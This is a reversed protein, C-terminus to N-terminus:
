EIRWKNFWNGNFSLGLCLRIYDEKLSGKGSPALHEWQVAVNLNSRTTYTNVIPLGLGLSATYSKPGDSGNVKAYSTAYAFGARYCIHDSVKLGEPNPVFEAGVNVKHRDSFAGETAQYAIQQGSTMLQPFRCKSWCQLTYDAGVKWKEGHTYALGVGYTTPLQLADPATLTDGGLIATATGKQNILTAQSNIKHGLSYALGLTLADKKNLKHTYQLGLDVSYTNVHAKYQRAVNYFATNDYTITSSHQLRGFIYGANFGISLNDIPSWGMGLWVKHTGGEGTYSSTVIKEGYGDIDALTEKSKFDYGVLSFPRLGLSMGLRNCLRFGAEMYDLTSNFANVSKSGESWHGGQLSIGVDFLLTVSDIAAYSAPNQTNLMDKASFGLGVGGMAKNFGQADESLSGWGYRSYPSNSGSTQAYVSQAFLCGLLFGVLCTQKLHKMTKDLM